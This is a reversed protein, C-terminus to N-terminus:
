SAHVMPQTARALFQPQSSSRSMGSGPQSLSRRGTSTSRASGLQSSHGHPHGHPTHHGQGQGPGSRISTLSASPTLSRPLPTLNRGLTASARSQSQSKNSSESRGSTPMSRRGSTATRRSRSSTSALSNYNNASSFDMTNTKFKGPYNNKRIQLSTHMPLVANHPQGPYVFRVFKPYLFLQQGNKQAGFKEMLLELHSEGLAINLNELARKLDRAACMGWGHPDYYNFTKMLDRLANPTENYHQGVGPTNGMRSRIREAITEESIHFVDDCPTQPRVARGNLTEGLYMRKGTRFAYKEGNNVVRGPYDSPRVKTLFEHVTLIGDGNADYKDFLNESQEQTAFLGLWSLVTVFERKTVGMVDHGDRDHVHSRQVQTKFMTLIQRFRDSDQSTFQQIKDQLLLEIAETTFAKKNFKVVSPPLATVHHRSAHLMQFKEHQVMQYFKCFEEFDLTGNNDTDIERFLKTITHAADDTAFDTFIDNMLLWDRIENQDVTGNKDADLQGWVSKAEKRYNRPGSHDSFTVINDLAM